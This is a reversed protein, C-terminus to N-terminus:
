VSFGGVENTESRKKVRRTGRLIWARWSDALKTGAVEHISRMTLHEDAELTTHRIRKEIIDTVFRGYCISHIEASMTIYLRQCYM